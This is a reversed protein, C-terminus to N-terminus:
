VTLEPINMIFLILHNKELISGLYHNEIILSTNESILIKLNELLEKLNEIHAFVNTFTIFDISPYSNKILTATNKDFFNNFITHGKDEADKSANTPEM